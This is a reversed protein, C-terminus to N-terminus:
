EEAFRRGYEQLTDEMAVGAEAQRRALLIGCLGALGKVLHTLGIAADEPSRADVVEMATKGVFSGGSPEGLWATMVAIADRLDAARPDPTPM